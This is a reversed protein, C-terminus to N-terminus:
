SATVQNAWWDDALYPPTEMTSSRTKKSPGETMLSQIERISFAYRAYKMNSILGQVAGDIPISEGEPIAAIVPNRLTELKAQSFIILEEFNQYPVTDKYYVRNALSGNLYVDLNGKYCNLVVHFWKQVPINKIDVYTYPNKHTNMVVRMINTHGWVFVGPGMLPWPTPYGKHFVHRLKQEGTFNTPSVFLYFSYGFEIGTRENVSLGIPIANKYKSLDQRIVLTNMDSSVTEGLVTRLRLTRDRSIGGIADLFFGGIFVIGLIILSSIAQSGTSQSSNLTYASNSSM